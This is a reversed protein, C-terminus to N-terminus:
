EAPLNLQKRPRSPYLKYLEKRRAELLDEPEGMFEAASIVQTGYRQGAEFVPAMKERWKLDRLLHHELVLKKLKVEEILRVLNEISKEFNKRSYRFGLMYTMPGDVYLIDPAHDFIFQVQDDIAPGEVDSTFLFTEKGDDIFIEFVFGLRSNTGHFVAKSLEIRTNGYTLSRGEAFELKKPIGKLREIFYSARERQSRNINETPHKLFVEKGEYLEVHDPNHHDYHYHTVFIVDAQKTWEAIRNWHMELREIELAHPPLGYRSPGLAVGPDIMIAVDDTKVFTAMSRTGMSDAALLKIEM